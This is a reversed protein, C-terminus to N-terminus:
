TREEVSTMARLMIYGGVELLGVDCYPYPALRPRTLDPNLRNLPVFM